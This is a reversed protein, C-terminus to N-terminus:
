KLAFHDLLIGAVLGVGGSVLHWFRADRLSAEQRNSLAQLDFITKADVPANALAVTAKEMDDRMLLFGTAQLTEMSGDPYYIVTGAPLVKAESSAIVVSALLFLLALLFAVLWKNM